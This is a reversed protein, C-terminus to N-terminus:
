RLHKNASIFFIIFPLCFFSFLSRFWVLASSPHFGTWHAGCMLYACSFTRPVNLFLILAHSTDKCRLYTIESCSCPCFLFETRSCPETPSVDIIHSELFSMEEKDQLSSSSQAASLTCSGTPILSVFCIISLVKSVQQARKNSADFLFELVIGLCTKFGSLLLTVSLCGM